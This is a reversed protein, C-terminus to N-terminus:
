DDEWLGGARDASSEAPDWELGARADILNAHRRLDM